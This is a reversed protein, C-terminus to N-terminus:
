KEIRADWYDPKRHFHAIAVILIEDERKQYIIGFPFRNIKCRRTRESIQPWAEPYKVILEIARLIEELFRIGLGPAEQNYFEVSDDFELRATELFNVIM